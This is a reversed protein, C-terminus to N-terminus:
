KRPPIGVSSLAETTKQFVHGEAVLAQYTHSLEALLEATGAAVGTVLVIQGRKKLATVIEDFIEVGDLDIFDVERLRLIVTEYGALAESFLREAHAKGNLYCLRGRFTYLIIEANEQLVKATGLDHAHGVLGAERSNAHVEFAGLSLQRVFILLAVLTGALIGFMPDIVVTLIAVGVAGWFNLKDHRWMKVLHEREIMGMAVFVLIAAIVPMPIYQFNTLFFASIIAVTVANVVGSSKYTAGTKVNLATRALAATAPMGGFLGAVTNAVSLGLVEHREHHKTGTMSDAIRASLMTELIAVLAVVLSTEFLAISVHFEAPQWLAFSMNPFKQGLTLFTFPILKHLSLYGIVIGVPALLIAGPIKPLYKKFALLALLFVAFLNVAVMSSEGIRSLSEFVNRIFETHAPVGQLGLVGNLQNLAIIFAVGITFGHIVSSPIFVLYRELRLMYAVFVIVGTMVALSPLLAGGQTLVFTAIIGSLAGTPGVINYHSGGFLAAMLGAWVATLIGVTPSANSAVALSVSLPISILAVTVGSQLNNATLLKM